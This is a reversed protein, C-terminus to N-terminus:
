GMVRCAGFGSALFSSSPCSHTEAAAVLEATDGDVSETDTFLSRMNPGPIVVPDGFVEQHSM